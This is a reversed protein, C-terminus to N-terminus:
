SYKKLVTEPYSNRRALSIIREPIGPIAPLAIIQSHLIPQSTSTQQNSLKEKIISCIELILDKIKEGKPYTLLIGDDTYEISIASLIYKPAQNTIEIKWEIQERLTKAAILERDLVLRERNEKENLVYSNIEFQIFVSEEPCQINKAGLHELYATMAKIYTERIKADLNKKGSIRYRKEKFKDEQLPLNNSAIILEEFNEPIEKDKFDALKIKKIIEPSSMKISSITNKKEDSDGTHVLFCYNFRLNDNKMIELIGINYEWGDNSSEWTNPIHLFGPIVISKSEAQNAQHKKIQDCMYKSRIGVGGLQYTYAGSNPINIFILTLQQTQCALIFDKKAKYAELRGAIFTLEQQARTVALDQSNDYCRYGKLANEQRNTRESKQPIKGSPFAELLTIDFDIEYIAEKITKPPNELYVTNYGKHKLEPLLKILIKYCTPDTHIDGFLIMEHM